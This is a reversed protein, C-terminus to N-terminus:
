PMLLRGSWVRYRFHPLGAAGPEAGTASKGIPGRRIVQYTVHRQGPRPITEAEQHTVAQWQIYGAMGLSPWRDSHSSKLRILLMTEYAAMIDSVCFDQLHRKDAFTM